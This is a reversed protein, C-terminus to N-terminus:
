AGVIRYTDLVALESMRFEAASGATAGYSVSVGGAAESVVGSPAALQRAMVALAVQAVDPASDFGHTLTVHVSRYRVPWLGHRRELSGIPSWDFERRVKLFTDRGVRVEIISTVWKTPLDIYRGGDSDLDLTETISPTIHWGCYRRIALSVGAVADAVRPDTEPIGAYASLQAATVIPVLNTFDAV